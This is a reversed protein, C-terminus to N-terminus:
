DFLGQSHVWNLHGNSHAALLDDESAPECEILEVVTSLEEVIAEMRGSEAAPDSTYVEYFDHHFYVAM